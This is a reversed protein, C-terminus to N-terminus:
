SQKRIIIINAKRKVHRFWTGKGFDFEEVLEIYWGEAANAEKIKKFKTLDQGTNRDYIVYEEPSFADIYTIM